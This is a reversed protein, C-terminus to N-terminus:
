SSAGRASRARRGCATSGLWGGPVCRQTSQSWVWSPGSSTRPVSPWAGYLVSATGGLIGGVINLTAYRRSHAQLWGHSAMLYAFFTGATGLWGLTAAVMHVGKSSGKRLDTHGASRNFVISLRQLANNLSVSHFDIRPSQPEEQRHRPCPAHERGCVVQALGGRRHRFLDGTELVLCVPNQHSARGVARRQCGLAVDKDFRCLLDLPRQGSHLNTKTAAIGLHVAGHAQPAELAEDRYDDGGREGFPLPQHRGDVELDDLRLLFRQRSRHFGTFQVRDYHFQIGTIRGRTQGFAHQLRRQEVFGPFQHHRGAGESGVDGVECSRTQGHSPTSWEFALARATARRLRAFPISWDM